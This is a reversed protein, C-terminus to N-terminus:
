DFRVYGNEVLWIIQLAFMNTLKRDRVTGFKERGDVVYEGKFCDPLRNFYYYACAQHYLEGKSDNWRYDVTIIDPIFRLLEEATPAATGIYGSESLRPEYVTKAENQLFAQWCFLTKQPFGLQRLRESFERSTVVDELNM